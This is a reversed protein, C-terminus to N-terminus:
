ILILDQSAEPLEPWEKPLLAQLLEVNDVRALRRRAAELATESADVALIRDGIKSLERTTVGISCGLELINPYHDQPLCAFTIRRKRKEYASDVYNWPDRHKRYLSDFTTEATAADNVGAPTFRFTETTRQFHSLFHSSLIVEDGAKPSLPSVQSRHAHIAHAKALLQEQTLTIKYWHRWHQDEDPNAWHWYWLPFELLGIRHTHALGAAVAAVAEHDSHGDSRYNSVILATRDDVRDAVEKGLNAVHHHVRGDPFELVEWTLQGADATNPCLQRLAEALEGRRVTALQVQTLTPSNPHSADGPTACVVHVDAGASLYGHILGAAGLTEDDPHSTLVLVRDGRRVQADQPLDALTAVGVHQWRQEEIGDDHHSFKVNSM